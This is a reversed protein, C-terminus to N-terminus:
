CFPNCRTSIAKVSQSDKAHYPDWAAATYEVYEMHPHVLYRIAHSSKGLAIM